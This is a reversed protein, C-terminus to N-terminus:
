APEAGGSDRVRYLGYAALTTAAVISALQKKSPRM